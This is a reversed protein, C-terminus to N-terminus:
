IEILSRRVDWWRGVMESYFKFYAGADAPAEVKGDKFHWPKDKGIFHLVKHEDRYRLVAPINLRFVKHMEMNYTFSLRYWNKAAAKQSLQQHDSVLTYGNGSRGNAAVEQDALVRKLPHGRTGDGFFVNLLGQDGGDFSEHVKAFECLEDYTAKDPTLFM